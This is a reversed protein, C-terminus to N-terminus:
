EGPTAVADVVAALTAALRDIAVALNRDFQEATEEHHDVLDTIAKLATFPVNMRECVWGVAAAEMDKARAHSAAMAEIDEVPADLANGTSVTGLEIDIEDLPLGLDVVPYDGVGYADWGPIAIRRDHYVCRDALILQGIQGGRSEFGGAAGASIVLDPDFRDIAHLTTTVAPQTGISDVDFRADAGVLAMGISRTRDITLTAPFNPHLPVSPGDLGLARGVPDAEARMAVVILVRDFAAPRNPV